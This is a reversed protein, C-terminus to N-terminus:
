PGVELFISILESVLYIAFLASGVCIVGTAILWPRTM